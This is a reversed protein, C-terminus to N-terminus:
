EGDQGGIMQLLATRGRVLRSSVTGIPLDLM